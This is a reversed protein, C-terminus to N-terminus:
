HTHSHHDRSIALYVDLLLVVKYHCGSQGTTQLMEVVAVGVDVDGSGGNTNGCGCVDILRTYVCVCVCKLRTYIYVCLCVRTTYVCVFM